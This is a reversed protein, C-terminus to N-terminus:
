QHKSDGLIESCVVFLAHAVNTEASSFVAEGEILCNQLILFNIAGSIFDVFSVDRCVWTLMLQYLVAVCGILAPTM